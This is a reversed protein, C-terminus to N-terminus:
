KGNLGQDSTIVIVAKEDKKIAELKENKKKKHAHKQIDKIDRERQIADLEKLERLLIEATDVFRRGTLVKRRNLSMRMAAIQQLANAFDGVAGVVGMEEKIENITSM